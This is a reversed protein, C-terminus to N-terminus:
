HYCCCSIVCMFRLYYSIICMFKVFIKFILFSISNLFLFLTRSRIGAGHPGMHGWATGGPGKQGWITM